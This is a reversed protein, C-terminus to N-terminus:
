TGNRGTLDTRAIGKLRELGSVVQAFDFADQPYAYRPLAYAGGGGNGTWQRMTLSAQVTSLAAVMGAEAALRTERPGFSTLDGNPWCFIPIARDTQTKLREWSGFIERRAQQDTTRALIPHTVTHPGFTVGSRGLSRVTDWSMPAFQTPPVAPLSVELRNELEAHAAERQENPLQKLRNILDRSTRLRGLLDQWEYRV